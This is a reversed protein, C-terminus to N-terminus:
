LCLIIIYSRGIVAAQLLSAEPHTHTNQPLQTRPPPTAFVTRFYEVHIGLMVLHFFRLFEPVNYCVCVYM